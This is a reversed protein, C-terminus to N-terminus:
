VHARGIQVVTFSLRGNNVVIVEVGEQKGGHLTIKKVSWDPRLPTVDKGLLEWTEVRSNEKVSILTKRFPEAAPSTLITMTLITVVSALSKMRRLIAFDARGARIIEM